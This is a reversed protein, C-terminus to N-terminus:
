NTCLLLPVLHPTAWCHFPFLLLLKAIRSHEQDNSLFSQTRNSCFSILGSWSKPPILPDSQIPCYIQFGLFYSFFSPMSFLYLPISPVKILDQNTFNAVLQCAMKGTIWFLIFCLMYPYIVMSLSGLIYKKAVPSFVTWCCFSFQYRIFLYHVSKFAM